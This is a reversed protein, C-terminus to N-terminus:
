RLAPFTIPPISDPRILAPLFPPPHIQNMTNLYQRGVCWLMMTAVGATLDSAMMLLKRNYRDVIAGTLPSLLIAPLESLFILWAFSTVASTSEYSWTRLAFKSVETGLISIFQSVWLLRLSHQYPGMGAAATAAPSSSAPSSGSRRGSESALPMRPPAAPPRSGGGGATKTPM